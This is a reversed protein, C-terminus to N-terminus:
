PPMMATETRGCWLNAAANIAAPTTDAADTTFM